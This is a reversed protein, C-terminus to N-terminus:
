FFSITDIDLNGDEDWEKLLQKKESAANEWSDIKLQINGIGVDLNDLRKLKNYLFEEVDLTALERLHTFATPSITSLSPDHTIGIEVDYIGGSWGNYLEIIDPVVFNFTPARGMASAVGAAIRVDALSSLVSDPSAWMGQPVYLDSYGLPRAVDVKIVMLVEADWYVTKPIRYRLANTSTVYSPPIKDDNGITFKERRPSRVSFEKLASENIRQYLENDDVPLPIDKIGIDSKILRLFESSTYLPM